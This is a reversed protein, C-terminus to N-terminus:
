ELHKLIRGRPSSARRNPRSHVASLIHAFRTFLARRWWFREGSQQEGIAIWRSRPDSEDEEDEEEPQHCELPASHGEPRRRPLVLVSRLLHLLAFRGRDLRRGIDAEVAVVVRHRVGMRAARDHDVGSEVVDPDDLPALDDGGVRTAPILARDDLDGLMDGRQDGPFAGGAVVAAEIAQMLRTGRGIGEKASGRRALGVEARQRRPKGRQEIAVPRRRDLRGPGPGQAGLRRVQGRHALEEFLRALRLPLRRRDGHRQGGVRPHAVQDHLGMRQRGVVVEM